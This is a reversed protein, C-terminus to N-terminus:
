ANHQNITREGDNLVRFEILFHCFTKKVVKVGGKLREKIGRQKYNSESETKSM